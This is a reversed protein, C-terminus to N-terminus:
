NIHRQVSYSCDDSWTVIDSSFAAVCFKIVAFIHPQADPGDGANLLLPPLFCFSPGFVLLPAVNKFNQIPHICCGPPWVHFSLVCIEFSPFPLVTGGAPSSMAARTLVPSHFVSVVAKSCNVVAFHSKALTKGFVLLRACFTHPQVPQRM